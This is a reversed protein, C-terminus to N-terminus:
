RLWFWLGILIAVWLLGGFFLGYVIGKGFSLPNEKEEPEKNDTM